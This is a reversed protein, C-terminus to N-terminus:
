SLSIELLHHFSKKRREKEVITFPYVDEPWQLFYPCFLYKTYLTEGMQCLHDSSHFYGSKTEKFHLSITKRENSVCFNSTAFGDAFLIAFLHVM